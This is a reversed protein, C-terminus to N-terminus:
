KNNNNKNGKEAGQGGAKISIVLVVESAVARLKSWRKGTRKRDVMEWGPIPSHEVSAGDGKLTLHSQRTTVRKM